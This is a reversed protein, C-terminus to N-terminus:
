TTIAKFFFSPHFGRGTFLSVRNQLYEAPMIVGMGEDWIFIHGKPAAVSYISLRSGFYITLAPHSIIEPQPCVQPDVPVAWALPFQPGTRCIGVFNRLQLGRHYNLGVPPSDLMVIKMVEVPRADIKDDLYQDLPNDRVRYLTHSCEQIPSIPRNHCAPSFRELSFPLLEYNPFTGRIPETFM